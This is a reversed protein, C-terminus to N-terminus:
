NFIELWYRAECDFSCIDANTHHLDLVKEVEKHCVFCTTHKAKFKTRWQKACQACGEDRRM